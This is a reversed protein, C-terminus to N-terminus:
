AHLFPVLSPSLCIKPFSRYVLGFAGSLYPATCSQGAFNWALSDSGVANLSLQRRCNRVERCPRSTGCNESWMILMCYFLFSHPIALGVPLSATRIFHPGLPLKIDALRVGSKFVAHSSTLILLSSSKRSIKVVEFDGSSSYARVPSCDNM